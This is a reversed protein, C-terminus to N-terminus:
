KCRQFCDLKKSVIAMFFLPQYFRTVWPPDVGISNKKATPPDVEDRGGKAVLMEEIDDQGYRRALRLPTMGKYDKANVDAGRFTSIHFWVPPFSM